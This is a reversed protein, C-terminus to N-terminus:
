RAVEMWLADEAMVHGDAPADQLRWALHFAPVSVAQGGLVMRAPASHAYLALLAPADTSVALENRLRRMRAHGPAAMLNFDRTAGGPLECHVAAGGDFRFAESARTLRQEHGEIRLVVGAGELVAFWRELGEFRSFPGPSAVEAVSLRVRWESATPWALLERTAGGGNRWPQPQTAALSVM